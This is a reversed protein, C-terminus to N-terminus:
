KAPKTEPPPGSSRLNSFNKLVDFWFPAGLSVALTTILLGIVKKAWGSADEPLASWGLPLGLKSLQDVNQKIVAVETSPTGTAPTPATAAAVTLGTGTVAARLSPEKFLADGIALTDAGLVLTLVLAVGLTVMQIKRKYYGSLRSMGDNFWTEVSARAKNMDGNATDIVSLLAQRASSEPLDKVIHTRVTELATPNDGAPAIADFLAMAFTNPPIYSPLSGKKSMSTVLSHNLVNNALNPDSLMNRIGSQLDKARWKMWGAIMENIHSAIMSLIFFIFVLGIAVDIMTSGFM